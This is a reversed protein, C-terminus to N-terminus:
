LPYTGMQRALAHRDVAAGFPVAVGPGARRLRARAQWASVQRAHAPRSSGPRSAFVLPTSDLRWAVQAAYAQGTAFVPLCAVRAACLGPRRSAWVARFTSRRPAWVARLDSQRPARVARFASRRPVRLASDRIASDRIASDRIASGRIASDGIASDGIASERIARFASHLLSRDHDDGAASPSATDFSWTVVAREVCVSM